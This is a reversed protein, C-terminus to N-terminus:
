GLREERSLEFTEFQDCRGLKGVFPDAIQAGHQQQVFSLVHVQQDGVRQLVVQVTLRLEDDAKCETREARDTRRLHTAIQGALHLAQHLRRVREYLLLRGQTRGSDYALHGLKLLHEQWRRPGEDVFLIVTIQM